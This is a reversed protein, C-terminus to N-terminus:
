VGIKRRLFDNFVDVWQMISLEATIKPVVPQTQHKRDKLGAWQNTFSWIVTEYVNNAVTLRCGVTSYYRTLELVEQLRKRTKVGFLYPTQPITSPNDNGKKKDPNKMWGRLRKLNEAVQEWNDKSFEALDKVKNIGEQGFQALTENSAEIQKSSKFFTNTQEKTLGAKTSAAAETM